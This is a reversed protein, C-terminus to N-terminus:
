LLRELWHLLESVVEVTILGIIGWELTTSHQTSLHNSLVGALEGAYDMKANLVAIRQRNDLARTIRRYLSELEPESWYLDPPDILESHLNVASRISLLQGRLRLVDKRDVGLKVGAQLARPIPKIRDIHEDMATEFSALKVSDALGNSFALQQRLHESPEQGAKLVILEGSSKIGSPETDSLMYEMEETEVERLPDEECGALVQQVERKVAQEDEDQGLPQPAGWVVFSGNRFFFVSGVRPMKAVLVDDCVYPSVSYREHLVPLLRAFNYADATCCAFVPRAASPGLASMVSTASTPAPQKNVLRRM